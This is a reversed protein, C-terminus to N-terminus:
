ECNAQEEEAAVSMARPGSLLTGGGDGRKSVGKRSLCQAAMLPGNVHM